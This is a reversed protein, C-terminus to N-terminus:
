CEVLSDHQGPEATKNFQRQGCLKHWPRVLSSYQNEVSEVHQDEQRSLGREARWAEASAADLRHSCWQGPNGM